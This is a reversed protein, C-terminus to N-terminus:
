KNRRKLFAIYHIHTHLGCCYGLQGCSLDICAKLVKCLFLNNKNKKIICMSDISWNRIKQLLTSVFFLRQAKTSCMNYQLYVIYIINKHKTSHDSDDKKKQGLCFFFSPFRCLHFAAKAWVTDPGGDTPWLPFKDTNEPQTEEERLLASGNCQCTMVCWCGPFLESDVTLTFAVPVWLINHVLLSICTMRRQTILIWRGTCSSFSAINWSNHCVCIM